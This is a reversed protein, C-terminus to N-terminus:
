SLVRLYRFVRQNAAEALHASDIMAEGIARIKGQADRLAVREGSSFARDASVVDDGHLPQGHQVVSSFRESITLAAYSVLTEGSILQTSLEGSLHLAEIQEFTLADDLSCRGVATRSLQSLYAGCGLKEGIDHALSRIYTGKSCDIRVSIKPPEYSLLTLNSIHVTRTPLTEIVEGQRALEYLKKGQVKVASFPPVTQEITGTFVKLLEEIKPVSLEPVENTVTKSDVGERDYTKSRKGLYIEAEYQKTEDSLFQSMTTASGLCVVLLGEAMPDLTGTHGIRRQGTIKRLRDIVDHSTMGLPKNVLLIGTYM